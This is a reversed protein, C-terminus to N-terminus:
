QVGPLMSVLLNLLGFGLAFSPPIRLLTRKFEERSQHQYMGLSGMSLVVILAFALAPLFRGSTSALWLPSSAVAAALLIALELMLLMFTMKSVYHHFIRIVILEGGGHPRRCM